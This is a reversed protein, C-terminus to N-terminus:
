ADGDPRQGGMVLTRPTPYLFRRPAAQRAERRMAAMIARDAEILGLLAPDGVMEVLRETRARPPLAVGRRWNVTATDTVGLEAAAQIWTWAPHAAKM